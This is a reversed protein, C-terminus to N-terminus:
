KFIYITFLESKGYDICIPKALDPMFEFLTNGHQESGGASINEKQYNQCVELLLM